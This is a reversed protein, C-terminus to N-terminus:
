PIDVVSWVRNSPTNTVELLGTFTGFMADRKSPIKSNRYSRASFIVFSWKSTKPKTKDEYKENKDFVVKRMPILYFPTIEWVDLYEYVGIPLEFSSISNPSLARREM